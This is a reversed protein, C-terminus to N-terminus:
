VSTHSYSVSSTTIAISNPPNVPPHTLVHDDVSEVLRIGYLPFIRQKRGIPHCVTPINEAKSWDSAMGHSYERSEVLRIGYWPFIRQKRGIPHWVMPINGAKLRNRFSYDLHLWYSILGNPWSSSHAGEEPTSGRRIVDVKYTEV